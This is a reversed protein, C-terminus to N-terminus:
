WCSGGVSRGRVVARVDADADDQQSGGVGGCTVLFQGLCPRCYVRVFDFLCHGVGEDTDVGHWWTMLSNM